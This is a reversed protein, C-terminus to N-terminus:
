HAGMLPVNPSTPQLPALRGALQEGSLAYPFIHGPTSHRLSLAVGEPAFSEAEAGHSSRAPLLAFPDVSKGNSSLFLQWDVAALRKEIEACVQVGGSIIAYRRIEGVRVAGLNVAIGDGLYVVVSCWIGDFYLRIARAREPSSLQGRELATFVALRAALGYTIGSKLVHTTLDGRNQWLHISRKFSRNYDASKSCVFKTRGAKWEAIWTRWKLECFLMPGNQLLQLCCGRRFTNRPEM